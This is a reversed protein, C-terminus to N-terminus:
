AAAGEKRTIPTSTGWDDTLSGRAEKRMRAIFTGDVDVLTVTDSSSSSSGSAGGVGSATVTGALNANLGTITRTVRQLDDELSPIEGVMSDGLGAMIARGAPQLLTYDYAVPGKHAAIWGAIGGVFDTVSRWKELLGNMFGELLSLGAQRLTGGLNGLAALIRGPLGQFWTVMAQLKDGIAANMVDMASQLSSRFYNFIDLGAAKLHEWAGAWNGHILDMVVKMINLIFDLAFKVGTIIGGFAAAVVNMIREGHASWFATLQAIAPGVIGKIIEVAVGIIEGITSFIAQITPVMPAMRASMGEVFSLVVGLIQDYVQLVFTELGLFAPIVQNWLVDGISQLLPLLVPAIAASGEQLVFWLDGATVQVQAMFDSLAGMPGTLGQVGDGASAFAAAAGGGVDTIFSQLVAFMPSAAVEKGTDVLWQLGTAVGSLAGSVATAAMGLGDKLLPLVPELASALGMGLNDQFTSWLGQLSLSQKEMLGSFRELGKGTELASMMKDLADKGLKGQNALEAIEAKPKGMAAALLDYVPIGADRLQNLDQAQIKGAANMQQLAVTARKIGEAGTGMGSTVNGLTTMIPIVKNSDIGISILSSAATQLGPFDFPTAAAFTKLQGIFDKAKAGSGLMTTFAIDANEMAGATQLGLSVMDAGLKAVGLAAFIGGVKGVLGSAWGSAHADARQLDGGMESTDVRFKAALTGLDLAM